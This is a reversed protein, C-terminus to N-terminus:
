KSKTAVVPSLSFFRVLFADMVAMLFQLDYDISVVPDRMYPRRDDKGPMVVMSPALIKMRKFRWDAIM